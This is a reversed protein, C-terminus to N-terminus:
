VGEFNWEEPNYDDVWREVVNALIECDCAGGQDRLWALVAGQQDDPLGIKNLYGIARRPTHDCGYEDWGEDIYKFLPLLSNRPFPLRKDAEAEVKEREQEQQARVLAKRREKEEKSTM